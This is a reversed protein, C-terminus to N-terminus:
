EGDADMNTSTDADGADSRTQAGAKANADVTERRAKYDPMTDGGTWRNAGEKLDPASGPAGWAIIRPVGDPDAIRLDFTLQTDSGNQTQSKVTIVVRAAAINSSGGDKAVKGQKLYAVRELNVSRAEGLGLVPYRADTDPDNMVVTLKDADYGVLASGWSDALRQIADTSDPTGLTDPWGATSDTDDSPDDRQVSIGGVLSGNTEVTASVRWWGYDSEVTLDHRYADVSKRGDGTKLRQAGDWSIIRANAGLPNGDKLWDAVRSYAESKGAPNLNATPAATPASFMSPNMLCYLILAQLFLIIYPVFRKPGINELVRRRVLTKRDPEKKAERERMANKWAKGRVTAM